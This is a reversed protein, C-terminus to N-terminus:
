ATFMAEDEEEEPTPQVKANHANHQAQDQAQQKQLDKKAM